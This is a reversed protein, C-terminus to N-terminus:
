KAKWCASQSNVKKHNRPNEKTTKKKTRKGRTERFNPHARHGTGNEWKKTTMRNTRLEQVSVERQVKRKGRFCCNGQAGRVKQTLGGDLLKLTPSRESQMLTTYGMSILRNM